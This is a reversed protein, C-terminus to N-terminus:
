TNTAKENILVLFMEHFCNPCVVGTGNERLSSMIERMHERRIEKITEDDMM